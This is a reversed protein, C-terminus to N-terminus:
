GRIAKPPPAPVHQYISRPQAMYISTYAVAMNLFYQHGSHEVPSTYDSFPCPTHSKKNDKDKKGNTGTINNGQKEIIDKEKDDSICYLLLKGNVTVQKVMDYLIGDYTFEKNTILWQIGNQSADIKVLKDESITSLIAEKVKERQYEKM